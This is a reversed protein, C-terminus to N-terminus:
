RFVVSHAPHLTTGWISVDVQGALPLNEDVVTRWWEWALGTCERAVVRLNRTNAPLTIETSFHATRDSDNDAWCKHTIVENGDEDYTFEDWQVNFQAVYAGSHDLTLKCQSYETSTVEVYDTTNHVAAIANDKIFASTYSIPYGPNKLSFTSNDKIVNRVEQFDTTILKSHEQSDGGLVVVTFSSNNVIHEIESNEEIKQGKVLLKFAEEVKASSSDSKLVVYITRGYAVNTVMVPPAEDSVGKYKLQDFTVNSQFLDSPNNPLEASVTYFIQKYAAVMYTSEGSIISEFDIGLLQNAVEVDVNLGMKLQNKSYVMTENYQTRAPLTHTDSNERCWDDVLQNVASNVTGYSPNEVNLTTNVGPLDVTINIPARDATILTPRNDAFDKDALLLAGPYTRDKISDIVSIDVPTSGLSKKNRQVVIFKGDKFTGEKPVVNEIVDGQQALVENKDYSLSGIGANISDSNSTDNTLASVNMVPSIAFTLLLTMTVITKKVSKKFIKTM